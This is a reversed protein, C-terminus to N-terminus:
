GHIIRVKRFKFMGASKPGQPCLTQEVLEPREPKVKGGVTLDLAYERLNKARMAGKRELGTGASLGVEFTEYGRERIKNVESDALVVTVRQSINQVHKIMAM